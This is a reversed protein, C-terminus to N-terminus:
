LGTDKWDGLDHDEQTRQHEVIIESVVITSDSHLLTAGVVVGGSHEIRDRSLTSAETRTGGGAALIQVSLIHAADGTLFMAMEDGRVLQPLNNATAEELAALAKLTGEFRAKLGALRSHPNDGTKPELRESISGLRERLTAGKKELQELRARLRGEAPTTDSDTMAFALSAPEAVKVSAERLEQGVLTLLARSDLTISSNVEKLERHFLFSALALGASIAPAILAPAFLKLAGGGAPEEPCISIPM